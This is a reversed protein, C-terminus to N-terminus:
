YTVCTQLYSCLNTFFVIISTFVTIIISLLSYSRYLLPTSSRSTTNDLSPLLSRRRRTGDELFRGRVRRANRYARFAASPRPHPAPSAPRAVLALPPAVQEELRQLALAFALAVPAEHSLEFELALAFM